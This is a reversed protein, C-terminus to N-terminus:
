KNLQKLHIRRRGSSDELSVQNIGVDYLMLDIKSETKKGFKAFKEYIIEMQVKTGLWFDDSQKFVWSLSATLNWFKKWDTESQPINKCDNDCYHNLMNQGYREAVYIFNSRKRINEKFGSNKGVPSVCFYVWQCPNPKSNVTGHLMHFWNFLQNDIHKTIAEEQTTLQDNEIFNFNVPVKDDDGFDNSNVGYLECCEDVRIRLHQNFDSLNQARLALAFNDTGEFDDDDVWLLYSKKFNYFEAWDPVMVIWVGFPNVGSQGVPCFNKVGDGVFNCILESDM